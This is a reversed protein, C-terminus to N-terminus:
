QEIRYQAERMIREIILDQLLNFTLLYSIGSVVQDEAYESSIPIAYVVLAHM